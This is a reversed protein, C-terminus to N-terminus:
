TFRAGIVRKVAPFQVRHSCWESILLMVGLYYWVLITSPLAIFVTFVNAAMLSATGAVSFITPRAKMSIYLRSELYGLLFPFCIVGLLGFDEYFAFLYTYTNFPIPVFYFQLSAEEPRRDIIHMAFLLRAVPFFTRVGWLHGRVDDMADQLTIFPGTAYLYPDSFVLGLESNTNLYQEEWKHSNTSILRGFVNGVGMFYFVTLGAVLGLKILLTGRIKQWGSLYIWVFAGTVLFVVLTVRDTLLYSQTFALLFGLGNFWRLRKMQLLYILSCIFLPYNLLVLSALIGIRPWNEFDRRLEAPDTFYTALGYLSDMRVCFFIIGAFSLVLLIKITLEYRDVNATAAVQADPKSRGALVCGGAFALISAAILIGTDPRLPYYDVLLRLHFLLLCACWVSVYVCLPTFIDRYLKWSLHVGVAWAALLLLNIAM